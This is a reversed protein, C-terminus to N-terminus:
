ELYIALIVRRRAPNNCKPMSAPETSKKPKLVSLTNANLLFSLRERMTRDLHEFHSHATTRYLDGM